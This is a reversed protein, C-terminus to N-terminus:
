TVAEWNAVAAESVDAIATIDRLELRPARAGIKSKQTPGTDALEWVGKSTGWYIACRVNTLAVEKLGETPGEVYGFFVGRHSTTVIVARKNGM